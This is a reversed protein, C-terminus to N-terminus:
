DIVADMTIAIFSSRIRRHILWSSRHGKFLFERIKQCLLFLRQLPIECVLFVLEVTLKNHGLFKILEFKLKTQNESLSLNLYELMKQM